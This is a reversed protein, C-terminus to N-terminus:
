GKTSVRGDARLIKEGPDEKIKDIIKHIGKCDSM